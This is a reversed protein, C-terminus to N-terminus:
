EDELEYTESLVQIQKEVKDIRSSCTQVLKMGAEYYRFSEELSVDGNELIDLINELEMLTEEITKKETEPEKGKRSARKKKPTEGAYVGSQAVEHEAGLESRVEENQKSKTM